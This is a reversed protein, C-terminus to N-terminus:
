TCREPAPAGPRLCLTRGDPVKGRRLTFRVLKGLRQPATVRVELTEGARFRRARGGLARVLDVKGRRSTHAVVRKVPCHRGSCRLEVTTGARVGTVRLKRIAIRSGHVRFQWSVGTGIPQLQEDSGDCNEDVGNGPTEPAGPHIAPDGDNCDQGVPYGDSDADTAPPTALWTLEYKEWDGITKAEATLRGWMGDNPDQWLETTVYLGNAVSKLAGRALADTESSSEFTFRERPGITAAAARLTGTNGPPYDLEATVYRGNNFARIAFQDGGVCVMHFTEWEAHGITRARLAGSYDGAYDREATVARGNALSDLM